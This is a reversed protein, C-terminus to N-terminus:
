LIYTCSLQWIIHSLVLNTISVLQMLLYYGLGASYPFYKYVEDPLKVSQM